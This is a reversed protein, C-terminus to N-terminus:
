NIASLNRMIRECCGLEAMLEANNIDSQRQFAEDFFNFRREQTQLAHSVRDSKRDQQTYQPKYAGPGPM